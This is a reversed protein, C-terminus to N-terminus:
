DLVVFFQIQEGILPGLVRAVTTEEDAVITSGDTAYLDSGEIVKARLASAADVHGLDFDPTPLIPEANLSVVM